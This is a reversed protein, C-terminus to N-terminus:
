TERSSRRSMSGTLMTMTQYPFLHPGVALFLFLAFALTSLLNGLQYLLLAPLSRGAPSSFRRRPVLTVSPTIGQGLGLEAARGEGRVIEDFSVSEPSVAEPLDRVPATTVVAM